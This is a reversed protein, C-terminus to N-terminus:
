RRRVVILQYTSHHLLYRSVSGLEWVPPETRGRTGVVVLSASRGAEMLAQRPHGHVLARRFDVGPYKEHWGVTTESLLREARARVSDTALDVPLVSGPVHPGPRSWAHVVLVACGRLDAEAAACGLAAQADPSGDVGVVVPGDPTDATRAVLVPCSARLTVEGAVTDYVGRALANLGRDGIVVLEAERSQDVLVPQPFGPVVEGSVPIGPAAARARQVGDLLGYGPEDPLPGTDSRAARGFPDAHVLHLPRHRLLAEAAAAEVAIRSQDSDDVGVVIRNRRSTM